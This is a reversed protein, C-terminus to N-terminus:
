TRDALAGLRITWRWCAKTRLLGDATWPDAALRREIEGPGEAEIVLLADRTDDLPGGLAVFGEATLADMFAAHADWNKQGELPRTDDWNPGRERLVVFPPM